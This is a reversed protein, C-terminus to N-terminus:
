ATVYRQAKQSRPDGVDVHLGAGRETGCMVCSERARVCHVAESGNGSVKGLGLVGVSLGSASRDLRHLNQDGTTGSVNAVGQCEENSVTHKQTRVLYM